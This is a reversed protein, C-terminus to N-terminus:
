EELADLRQDRREERAEAGRPPEEALEIREERAELEAIPTPGLSATVVVIAAAVIAAAVLLSRDLQIRRSRVAHIGRGRDGVDGLLPGAGIRGAVPAPPRALAVLARGRDQVRARALLACAVIIHASNEEFGFYAICMTAVIVALAAITHGVARHATSAPGPDLFSLRLKGYGVAMLTVQYLALAAVVSALVIKVEAVNGRAISEIADEM